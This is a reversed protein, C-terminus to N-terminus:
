LSNVFPFLTQACADWMSEAQAVEISNDRHRRAISEFWGFQYDHKRLKLKPRHQDDTDFDGDKTKMVMVHELEHDILADRREPTMGHYKDRDIVIEADARGAARDKSSIVRVVAYAAYGGHSLAPGEGDTSVFLLDFTVEGVRLDPHYLAIMRAARDTVEDNCRDYCKM